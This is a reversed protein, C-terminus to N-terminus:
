RAGRTDEHDGRDEMAATLNADDASVKALPVQKEEEDAFPRFQAAPLSQMYTLLDAYLILSRAGAKLVRLKGLRADRYLWARSLGSLKAATNFDFAILPVAAFQRLLAPLESVDVKDISAPDIRFIKM